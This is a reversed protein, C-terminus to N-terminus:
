HTHTSSISNRIARVSVAASAEIRSRNLKISDEGESDNRALHVLEYTPAARVEPFSRGMNRPAGRGAIQSRIEQDSAKSTTPPLAASAATM